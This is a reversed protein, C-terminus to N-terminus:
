GDIMKGLADAKGAGAGVTSERVVLEVPLVARPEEPSKGHIQDLLMRAALRGIESRPQRVTTLPVKTFRSFDLDAYGVVALDEPVRVGRVLCEEIVGVAVM